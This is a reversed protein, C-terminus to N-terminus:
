GSALPLIVLVPEALPTGVPEEFKPERMSTTEGVVFSAKVDTGFLGAAPTGKLTVTCDCSEEPLGQLGDLLVIIVKLLADPPPANPPRRVPVMKVLPLLTM